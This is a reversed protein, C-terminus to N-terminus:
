LNAADTPERAVTRDRNAGASRDIKRSPEDSRSDAVRLVVVFAAGGDPADGVAIKGDFQDVLAAVLPLGFSSEGADFLRAKRDDPIGPGNDVIRVTVTRENREASVRVAPADADNHEVANVLLNRFVAPLMSHALVDVEPLSGIVEVDVDGSRARVKALEAEVTAALPRPELDATAASTLVETFEETSETLEIIGNSAEVIKRLRDDAAPGREKQLVSAWGRIVMTDNRIDHQLVRNLIALRESRRQLEAERTRRAVTWRYLGVVLLVTGVAQAGNEFASGFWEPHQVFEDLFDTLAFVLFVTVGGMLPRYIETEDVRAVVFLAVALVVVMVGEGLLDVALASQEAPFVLFQAAAALVSLCIVAAPLYRRVPSRNSEGDKFVSRWSQDGSRESGAQVSGGAETLKGDDRDDTM